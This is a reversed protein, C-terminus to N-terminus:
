GSNRSRRTRPTAPKRSLEKYVLVSDRLEDVFRDEDRLEDLLKACKQCHKLHSECSIRGLVSMEGHRYLELEEKTYHAM